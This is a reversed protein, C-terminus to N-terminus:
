DKIFILSSTEFINLREFLLINKADVPTMPSSNGSCFIIFAILFLLILFLLQISAAFAM